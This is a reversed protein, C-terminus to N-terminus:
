AVTSATISLADMVRRIRQATKAFNMSMIKGATRMNMAILVLGTLATLSALINMVPITTNM